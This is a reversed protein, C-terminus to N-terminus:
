RSLAGIYPALAAPTEWRKGILRDRVIGGRAALEVMPCAVVSYLQGVTGDQDYAVPISWGHQRVAAAVAAHGGDVAVAAFQVSPYRRSLAQFANVQRECEPARTVFLALAVPGRAAMLCLNLARPDHRAPSCTPHPNADGSLTSAALPAAFLHLRGGPGVGTSERRHGTLQYVSFAALLALGIIGVMRRYPRTDIVPHPPQPRGGGAPLEGVQGAPPESM